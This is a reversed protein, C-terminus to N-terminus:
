PLDFQRMPDNPGQADAADAALPEVLPRAVPQTTLHHAPPRAEPAAGILDRSSRDVTRAPEVQEVEITPTVITSAPKAQHCAALAAFLGAGLFVIRNRNQM